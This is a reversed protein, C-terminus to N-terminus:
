HRADFAEMAPRPWARTFSDVELCLPRNRRLKQRRRSRPDVARVSDRGCGAQEPEPLPTAPPPSAHRIWAPNIRPPLPGGAEQSYRASRVLADLMMILRTADAPKPISVCSHLEEPLCDFATLMLFPTRRSRLECAVAEATGDRLEFDLSAGTCPCAEILHLAEASSATPGIVEAGAEKLTAALDLAQM